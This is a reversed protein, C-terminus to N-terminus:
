ENAALQGALRPARRSRQRVLDCIRDLAVVQRAIKHIEDAVARSDDDLTSMNGHINVSPSKHSASVPCRGALVFETSIVLTTTSERCHTGPDTNTANAPSCWSPCSNIPSASARPATAM